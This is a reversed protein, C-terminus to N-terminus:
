NEYPLSTKAVNRKKTAVVYNAAFFGIGVVVFSLGRLAFSLNTDLFRCLTLVAIILLGFNLARFEMKVIGAKIFAIGSALVLLNSIITAAVPSMLGIFYVLPFIFTIWKLGYSDQKSNYRFMIIGSVTLLLLLIIIYHPLLNATALEEWLFKFSSVILLLIIGAEGILLYGNQWLAHRKFYSLLGINYLLSLFAMYIVFSFLNTEVFTGLVILTSAPILQHMIYTINSGSNHKIMKLYFPVLAVIFLLYMYPFHSDAFYGAEVAYWTSFILQLLVIAYSKFIYVLPLCLLIWTCLFGATNGPINYIQAVLAISAGVSFFLLTVVSEMLVMGKNAILTYGAVMQCIFLPLIALVLKITKSFNDWNHAFILIIGLGVLLSGLVGFITLLLNGQPEKKNTYYDNIATAIQPSIIGKEILDPLDKQLQNM